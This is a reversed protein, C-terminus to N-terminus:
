KVYDDDSNVLWYLNLGRLILNYPEVIKKVLTSMLINHNRVGVSMCWELNRVRQIFRIPTHRKEILNSQVYVVLLLKVVQRDLIKKLYM